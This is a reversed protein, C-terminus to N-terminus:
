FVLFHHTHLPFPKKLGIEIIIFKTIEDVLKKKFLCKQQYEFKVNFWVFDFRHNRDGLWDLSKQVLNGVRYCTIAEKAM